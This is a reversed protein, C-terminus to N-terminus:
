RRKLEHLYFVAKQGNAEDFDDTLQVLCAAGDLGPVTEIIFGIAGAVRHELPMRSDPHGDLRDIAKVRTGRIVENEEM